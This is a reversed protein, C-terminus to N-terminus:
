NGKNFISSSMIKEQKHIILRRRGREEGRGKNGAAYKEERRAGRPEPERAGRPERSGEHALEESTSLNSM